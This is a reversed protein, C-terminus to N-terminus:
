TASLSFFILVLIPREKALVLGSGNARCHRCLELRRSPITIKMYNQVYQLRRMHM